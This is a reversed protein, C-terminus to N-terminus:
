KGDYLRSGLSIPLGSIKIKEYVSSINYEIRRIEAEFNEVDIVAYSARSDGDRPQGVSGPNIMLLERSNDSKGVFPIHTHGLILIDIDASNM